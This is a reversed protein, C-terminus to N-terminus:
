LEMEDVLVPLGQKRRLTGIIREDDAAGLEQKLRLRAEELDLQQDFKM